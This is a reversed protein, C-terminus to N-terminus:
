YITICWTEDTEVHGSTGAVDVKIISNYTLIHVSYEYFRQTNGAESVYTIQGGTRFSDRPHQSWSDELRADAPTRRGTDDTFSIVWLPYRIETEEKTDVVGPNWIQLNNNIEWVSPQDHHFQFM